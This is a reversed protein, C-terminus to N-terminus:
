CSKNLLGLVLDADKGEPALTLSPQHRVSRARLDVENDSVRRAACWTNSKSLKIHLNEDVLTRQRYLPGGHRM